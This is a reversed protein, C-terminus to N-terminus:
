LFCYGTCKATFCCHFSAYLCSYSIHVQTGMFFRISQGSFSTRWGLFSITSNVTIDNMNKRVFPSSSAATKTTTGTTTQYESAKIKAKTQIQIACTSRNSHSNISYHDNLSITHLTSHINHDNGEHQIAENARNTKPEHRRHNIFREFPGTKNYSEGEGRWRETVTPNTRAHQRTTSLDAKSVRRSKNKGTRLARDTLTAQETPLSIDRQNQTAHTRPKPKEVEKKTREKRDCKSNTIM